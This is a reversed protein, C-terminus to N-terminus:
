RQFAPSSSVTPEFPDTIPHCCDNTRHDIRDPFHARSGVCAIKFTACHFLSFLPVRSGPSIGPLSTFAGKVVPRHGRWGVSGAGEITAVGLGQACRRSVVRGRPSGNTLSSTHCSYSGSGTVPRPAQALLAKLRATQAQSSGVLRTQRRPDPLRLPEPVIAGHSSAVIGVLSCM